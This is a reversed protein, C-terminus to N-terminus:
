RPVFDRATGEDLNNTNVSPGILYTQLAGLSLTKSSASKLSEYRKRRFGNMRVFPFEFFDVNPRLLFFDLSRAGV